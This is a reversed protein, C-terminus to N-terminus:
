ITLSFEKNEILYLIKVRIEIHGDEFFHCMKWNGKGDLYQEYIPQNNEYIITVSLFAEIMMYM